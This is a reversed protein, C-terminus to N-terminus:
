RETEPLTPSPEGLVERAACIQSYWDASRKLSREMTDYNVHLLGFRKAYGKDWEFNDMLSWVFYGNVPVGRRRCSLAERLHARVYEQRFLDHIEGRDSKLDPAACGNETVYISTAGYRRHVEELLFSLGAPYSPWGMESRPLTVMPGYDEYGCEKSESARVFGPFYMNLGLHDIPQSILRLDGDRVGPVSRNNPYEGSFFPDFWWAVQDSWALRAAQLDEDSRTLPLPIWPNLVLGVEAESRLSRIRELAKGHALFLHHSAGLARQNSLKKGPAHQGTQYGLVITSWPENITFWHRVRDGLRSVVVEAYDAFSQTTERSEWGGAQELALPLDWHYLTAWPQIDHELLKDVLRSYFDLGKHNVRGRGAPLIRPWAISFRYADIRLRSMWEVDEEFRHYHDCAMAGTEGSQGAFRDWISPGRGDEELAGEIQFASTAAGLIFNSPLKV